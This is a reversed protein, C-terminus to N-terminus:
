ALLGQYYARGERFLTAVERRQAESAFRGERKLWDLSREIARDFFAAAVTREPAARGARVYVPSTHAFIPQFFSDRNESSLRAALWGSSPPAFDLEFRGERSGGRLSREAVVRGNWVVQAREVAYHSHWSVAIPLPKGPSADVTEGPGSGAVDLSLAPGNTIFTRGAQLAAMWAAYDFPGGTDAYVRNASCIFWDSGTSAPLKLGCNLMAYWLDYEPDIWYPDFLNFADLKGLAAAIPAEMGQGNHCWIVLGGQRRAEDCAYSLPPYDPDTEDVLYGRSLPQVTEKLRLLMVHGYGGAISDHCDNHRTEEGCEVYHHASTFEILMGPPYKNSAYPLDRRRLVSIATLRLDEVRPDLRLREDPRRENHDYHIHTNVPHWGREALHAWRDLEIDVALTGSNPAELTLRAPAYETGREVLIQTLGRPADLSFEGDAYFFPLGPGVKLLADKPPLFVGGSSLVQARAALREGTQKDWIRAAITAM